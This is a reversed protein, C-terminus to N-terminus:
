KTPHLQWLGTSNSSHLPNRFFFNASLERISWNIYGKDGEKSNAVSEEKKHKKSSLGLKEYGNEKRLCFEVLQKQFGENCMVGFRKGHIKAITELLPLDYFEICAAIAITVSRNFGGRCRILINNAELPGNSNEEKEERAKEIKWLTIVTCNPPYKQLTSRLGGSGLSSCNHFLVQQFAVSDPGKSVSLLSATAQISRGRRLPFSTRCKECVEKRENESRHHSNLTQTCKHVTSRAACPPSHPNTHTHPELRSKM